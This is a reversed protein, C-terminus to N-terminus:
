TSSTATCPARTSPALGGVTAQITAPAVGAAVLQDILDQRRVRGTRYFSADGPTPYVCRFARQYAGVTAPKLPDGWVRGSSRPARTPSGRKM